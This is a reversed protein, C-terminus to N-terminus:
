RTSKKVSPSPFGFLRRMKRNADTMRDISKQFEIRNREARKKYDSVFQDIENNEM